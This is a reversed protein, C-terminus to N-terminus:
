MTFNLCFTSVFTEGEGLHKGIVDCTFLAIELLLVVDEFEKSDSSV